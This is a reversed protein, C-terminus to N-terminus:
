GISVLSYFGEFFRWALSRLGEEGRYARAVMSPVESLRGLASLESHYEEAWTAVMAPTTELHFQLGYAKKGYRFAQNECLPSGALRVAGEPMDFTDGHWHFPTFRRGLGQFLLDGKAGSTLSAPYFGIEKVPNPRVRAGLAKALLQAGLCIGLFPIGSSLADKIAANELALYPFEEEQYVNPPGGLAVLAEYDLPDPVPDRRYLKAAQWSVGKERLFDGLLGPHECPHHQLFLWAM